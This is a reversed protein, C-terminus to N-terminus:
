GHGERNGHRKRIGHVTFVKGEGERRGGLWRRRVRGRSCRSGQSESKTRVKSSFKRDRTKTRTEDIKPPVAASNRRDLPSTWLERSVPIDIRRTVRRHFEEYPFTEWRSPVRSRHSVLTEIDRINRRPCAPRQVPVRISSRDVSFRKDVRNRSFDIRHTADRRNDIRSSVVTSLTASEPFQVNRTLPFKTLSSVKTSRISLKSKSNLISVFYSM